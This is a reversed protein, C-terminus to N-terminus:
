ARRWAEWADLSRIDASQSIVAALTEIWPLADHQSVKARNIHPALNIGSARDGRILAQKLNRLAEERNRTPGHVFEYFWCESAMGPIDGICLKGSRRLVLELATLGEEKRGEGLLLGAYNALHLHSPDLEFVKKYYIEAQAMDGRVSQLFNAYNGLHTAHQPDAEIARKYYIEAQDMQGRVTELFSAYNGLHHAHPETELSRKYYVEAEDMRGPISQLFNAYNGLNNTHNPNEKLALEYYIKAQEKDDRITKLFTAYNGLLTASHPFQKLGEQYIRDAAAPDTDQIRSAAIQVARWDSFSEDTRKIAEKLELVGPQTDPRAQIRKSLAEYTDTYRQFVEDFRHRRPHPLEFVDRLLLMAEDFDGKEIWIAKRSELWKRIKGEPQTSNVWYVGLPLAEFPLQELMRTIGADNGGYGLFILGRDHLLSVIQKEIDGKIQSTEQATNQPTLRNDGHLKIVLPRTRTPRIFNALSEHHIVLPRTDTFLYLADAVLDDFNTTLVVNFRGGELAMLNALVAYGFAPFRGNCWVEMERQREEPQLFLRNIVEGYSGAPNSADYQAMVEKAWDHLDKRAPAVIDRLRPLWHDRVLTSAAPINSSVSCGAGLFFAFRKDTEKITVKLRRSFEDAKLTRLVEAM